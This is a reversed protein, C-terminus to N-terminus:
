ELHQYDARLGATPTRVLPNHFTLARQKISTAECPVPLGHQREADAVKM